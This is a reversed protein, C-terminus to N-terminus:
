RTRRTPKRLAPGPAEVDESPEPAVDGAAAALPRADGQVLQVLVRGARRRRDTKAGCGASGPASLPDYWRRVPANPTTYDHRGTFIIVPCELRTLGTFDTAAIEPLLEVAKAEDLGNSSVVRGVEALIAHPDPPPQAAAFPATAVTAVFAVGAVRM